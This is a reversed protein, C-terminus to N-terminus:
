RLQIELKMKELQIQEMRELHERQQHENKYKLEEKLVDTYNDIYHTITSKHLETYNQIHQLSHMIENEMNQTLFHIFYYFQNKILENTNLSDITCIQQVVEEIANFENIIIEDAIYLEEKEKKNITLPVHLHAYRQRLLKHFQKEVQENKVRRLNILYFDCKYENRLSKIRTVIDATYGIKCLISDQHKMSLIFLYMVHQNIYKNLTIRSGDYILNKLLDCYLKNKLSPTLPNTMSTQLIDNISDYQTPTIEKSYVHVHEQVLSQNAVECIQNPIVENINENIQKQMLSQDLDNHIHTRISEKDLENNLNNCKNYNNYNYLTINLLVQQMQIDIKNYIKPYTSLIIYFDRILIYEYLIYGGYKNQKWETKKIM